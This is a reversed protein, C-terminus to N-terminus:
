DRQGTLIMLINLLNLFINYIDLYLGLTAMIYNTEGGNVIRSVDFLILLSFIFVSITSLTLALATIQLFANAIMAVFLLILGVFLFKSMFSFDKKTVMAFGALSFFIVTTFGASLAILQPGNKFSLASQLTIGSAVGLMFTMVFLLVIGWGSNRAHSVAFMLGFAVLWAVLSGIGSLQFNVALLAGIITPIMTLSLLMYTNRLVKHQELAGATSRTTIQINPQMVDEKFIMIYGAKLTGLEGQLQL